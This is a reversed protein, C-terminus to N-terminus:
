QIHEEEMINEICERLSDMWYPITIYKFDNKIKEKSLVSYFPRPAHKKEGYYEKTTIGNIGALREFQYKNRLTRIMMAFDFWSCVGENTYHYIGEKQLPVTKEITMYIFNALDRAYTPSGIQDNVVNIEDKEEMLKLMTKVFNNGYESYLWATRIILYKCGSDIINKEGEVKTKGYISHPFAPRDETVPMFSLGSHVYDTSIHILKAGHIKSAEVLNKVADANLKKAIDPEEEAKDVNTYAACNVCVSIFNNIFFNKVDEENTIDLHEVIRWPIDVVDTWFWTNGNQGNKEVCDRLCQGLQGNAGTVLINM